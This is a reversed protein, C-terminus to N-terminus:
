LAQAAALSFCTSCGCQGGHSEEETVGSNSNGTVGTRGLVTPVPWIHSELNILTLHLIREETVSAM